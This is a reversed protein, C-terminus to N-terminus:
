AVAAKAPAFRFPLLALAENYKMLLEGQSNAGLFIEAIEFSYSDQYPLHALRAGERVLVRMMAGPFRREFRAIDEADPIREVIGDEFVRVMFKAAIRHRGQRHPFDPRRGLALEIGVKQHSVGDVLLFLPSHSKSLRTNIELIRIGDTRPDWYFEANFPANDYGIHGMIRATAEIMRNRVRRPLQSPYQYRAFCSRHKGSRVSDVVGYVVVEGDYVYGELTCQRGTSIIEEAICHHGSVAAIEAPVDVMALFADFPEAFHGIGARIVPLCADFDRRNRIKFGLHSSHAKVPKIWFPFALDIQSFPDGAFPDVACFRPILDPIVRQQEIRCWYKHECAALAELSPGPLGCHRSLVPALVSAPFDWYGIIADVTGSFGALRQKAKELLANFDIRGSRPRVAEDYALVDHFRYQGGANLDQLLKLNFPELGIVFINKM